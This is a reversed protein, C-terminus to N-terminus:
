SETKLTLDSPFIKQFFAQNDLYDIL